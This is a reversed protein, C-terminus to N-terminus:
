KGYYIFKKYDEQREYYNNYYCYYYQGEEDIYYNTREVKFVRILENDEIGIIWIRGLSKFIFEDIGLALTVGIVIGVVSIYLLGILSIAVVVQIIFFCMGKIIGLKIICIILPVLAILLILMKLAIELYPWSMKNILLDHGFTGMVMVSLIPIIYRWYFLKGTHYIYDATQKIIFVSIVCILIGIITNFIIQNINIESVSRFM